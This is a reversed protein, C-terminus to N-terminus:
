KLFLLDRRTTSVSESTAKAGSQLAEVEVIHNNLNSLLEEAQMKFWLLDFRRKKEREIRESQNKESKQGKKNGAPDERGKGKSREKDEDEEAANDKIREEDNDLDNEIISKDRWEGFPDLMNEAIRSFRKIIDRQQVKIQHMIGLEDIIDM